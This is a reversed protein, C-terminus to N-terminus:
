RYLLVYRETRPGNNNKIYTLSRELLTNSLDLGIKNASSVLKMIAFQSTVSNLNLVLSINLSIFVHAIGFDVELQNTFLFTNDYHWLAHETTVLLTQQQQVGVRMRKRQM